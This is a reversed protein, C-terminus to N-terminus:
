AFLLCKNLHYLYISYYNIAFCTKWIIKNNIKSGNGLISYNLDIQTMVWSDQIMAKRTNYALLQMCQFLGSFLRKYSIFLFNFCLHNGFESSFFDLSERDTSKAVSREINIYIILKKKKCFFIITWKNFLTLKWSEMDNEMRSYYGIESDLVSIPVLM